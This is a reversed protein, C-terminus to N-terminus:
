VDHFGANELPIPNSRFHELMDFISPFWLHQVRCNGEPNLSLRLHKSRGQLNFTLVYEGRRTESQRIIFAGHWAAGGNLIVMAAQVRTLTGHFWPYVALPHTSPSSTTWDFTTSSTAGESVPSYRLSTPSADPPPHSSEYNECTPADLNVTESEEIEPLDALQPM